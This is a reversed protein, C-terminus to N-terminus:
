VVINGTVPVTRNTNAQWQGLLNVYNKKGEANATLYTKTTDYLNSFQSQLFTYNNLVGLVYNHVVCYMQGPLLNGDTADDLWKEWLNLTEVKTTYPGRTRTLYNLLVLCLHNDPTTLRADTISVPIDLVQDIPLPQAVEATPRPTPQPASKSLKEEISTTAELIKQISSRELNRLTRLEEKLSENEATMRVITENASALQAKLESVEKSTPQTVTTSKRIITKKGEGAKIVPEAKVVRHSKVTVHKLLKKIIRGQVDEFRYLRSERKGNDFNVLAYDLGRLKGDNVLNSVTSIVALRSEASKNILKTDVMYDYIDESNYLKMSSAEVKLIEIFLRSKFNYDNFLPSNIAAETKESLFGECAFYKRVILMMEEDTLRTQRKLASYTLLSPVPTAPKDEQNKTKM